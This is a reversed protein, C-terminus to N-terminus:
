SRFPIIVFLDLCCPITPIPLYGTSKRTPRIFQTGTSFDPRGKPDGRNKKFLQSDLLAGDREMITEIKRCM